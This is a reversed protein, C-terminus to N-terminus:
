ISLEAVVTNNVPNKNEDWFSPFLPFIDDLVIMYCTNREFVAILAM